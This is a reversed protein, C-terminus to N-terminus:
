PAGTPAGKTKLPRHMLVMGSATVPGRLVEIVPRWGDALKEGPRSVRTWQYEMPWGIYNHRDTQMTPRWLFLLAPSVAQPRM